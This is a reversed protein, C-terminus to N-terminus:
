IPAKDVELYLGYSHKLTYAYLKKHPNVYIYAANM